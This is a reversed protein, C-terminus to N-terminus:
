GMRLSIWSIIAVNVWERSFVWGHRACKPIQSWILSFDFLHPVITASAQPHNLVTKLAFLTFCAFQWPATRVLLIAQVLSWGNFQTLSAHHMNIWCVCGVMVKQWDLDNRCFDVSIWQSPWWWQQVGSVKWPTLLFPNGGLFHSPIRFLSVADPSWVRIFGEDVNSPKSPGKCHKEGKIKFVVLGQNLIQGTWPNLYWQKLSLKRDPLIPHNNHCSRRM